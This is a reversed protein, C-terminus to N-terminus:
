ANKIVRKIKMIKKHLENVYDAKKEKLAKIQLDELRNLEDKYLQLERNTM